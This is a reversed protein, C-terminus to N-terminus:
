RTPRRTIKGRMGRPERDNVASQVGVGAAAFGRMGDVVMPRAEAAEAAAQELEDLRRLEDDSAGERAAARAEAAHPLDDHTLPQQLTVWFKKYPKVRVWSSRVRQKARSSLDKLLARNQM